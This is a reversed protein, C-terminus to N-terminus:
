PRGGRPAPRASALWNLCLPRERTAYFEHVAALADKKLLVAEPPFDTWQGYAFFVVVAISDEMIRQPPVAHYTKQDTGGAYTAFSLDSGVVASFEDQCGARGAETYFHVLVGEPNARAIRDLVGDLEQTSRVVEWAVESGSETWGVGLPELGAM